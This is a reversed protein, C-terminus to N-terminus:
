WMACAALYRQERESFGAFSAGLKISRLRPFTGAPSTM